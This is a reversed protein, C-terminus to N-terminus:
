NNYNLIELKEIKFKLIFLPIIGFVGFSCDIIKWLLPIGRFYGAIFAFPVILICAIMAYTVVWKNRVADKMVGFFSIGIVIHAFALWDYGYLLFGHNEKMISISEYVTEVWLKLSGGIINMSLLTELEWKVPIATIGSIILAAIFFWSLVKIQSQLKETQDRM